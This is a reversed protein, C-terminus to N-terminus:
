CSGSATVSFSGGSISGPCAGQPIVDEEINLNGLNSIGTSNNQNVYSSTVNSFNVTGFNWSQSAYEVVAESSSDDVYPTSHTESTAQGNSFNEWFFSATGNQNDLVSVYFSNGPSISPCNSSCYVAGNPYDEWWIQYTAPNGPTSDQGAQM